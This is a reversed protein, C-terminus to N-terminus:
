TMEKANASQMARHPQGTMQLALDFLNKSRSQARVANDRPYKIFSRCMVGAVEIRIDSYRGISSEIREMVEYEELSSHNENERWRNGHLSIKM